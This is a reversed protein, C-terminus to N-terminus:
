LCLNGEKLRYIEGPSVISSITESHTTYIFQCGVGIQPLSTLFTQALPPHLNLDIEDILVVSNCIQQRVFEYIIPFIAQEGASMEEIDYTRNGDSLMFYSSFPTTEGPRYMPEPAAFSRKPFVLKYIKELEDLYDPAFHPKNQRNIWWTTLYKRLKRVGFSYSAIRGRVDGNGTGDDDQDESNQISDESGALNRYQDFWFIGPLRSFLKRAEPHQSISAAYARGQFQFIEDREGKTSFRGGELRVTVDKSRGPEIYDRDPNTVEFWLKAAEHTAQIEDDTFHVDIEIIPKGWNYYRGPLWSVWNFRDVSKTIRSVMSICLAIAQLITTKGAGNDGLILFQGANEGTITNKIPVELTGFRKFNELKVRSIQM